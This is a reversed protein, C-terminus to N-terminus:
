PWQAALWDAVPKFAAETEPFKQKSKTATLEQFYLSLHRKEVKNVGFHMRAAERVDEKYITEFTGEMFSADIDSLTLAVGEPLLSEKECRKKGDRGAKDADFLIRFDIGWGKFLNLLTNLDSAGNAPFICYKKTLLHAGSLFLMPHFDYKGEVILAKQSRELPSFGFDLADLVPQFYTTKTPHTAVFNRYKTAEISTERVTFSSVQEADDYDIANNQVIYAKELWEPNVMYHSHTSYIIYTNDVAIKSFSELLKMQAKSHLNAAPEDFLFINARDGSKKTRFQTFLLFSFFWRFGLSRESLAYRSQGDIISVQLYPVNNKEGDIAWDVQVRKDFLEKGLIANWAGFITRSMENSIRATVADIQSKEDLGFLHSLFTAPTPYAGRLRKVREVIHKQVSIGGEAKNLVDQIVQSYYLNIEDESGELYIRDPFDFLFTPFYVIRPLRERLDAVLTLWVERTEPNIGSYKKYKKEKPKKLDFSITWLNGTTTFNSDVFNYRREVDIKRELSAVDLQLGFRSFALARVSEIDDAELAIDTDVSIQGTFAAKKHKPILDQPKSKKHVTGVLNATDEDETVFHSIAELITTKGSENLGILTIVNGPSEDSVNIRTKHIGRFNQLKFARIKM